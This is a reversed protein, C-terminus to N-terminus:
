SSAKRELKLLFQSFVAMVTVLVATATTLKPYNLSAFMNNMFHQLTYISDHPYGGTIMYIEKFVKFSNILSMILVLISAPQLLPLIIGKFIDGAGAGDIWAAEYYDHPIRNLGDIYLVMSYGLNKWTFILVMIWFATGSDLWRVKGIGLMNLWGNLVGQDAFLSSWFFAMSGSPIVLPILFVLTFLDKRKKIGKAMLSLGLAAGMNLPVSVAIFKCTNFLGKLYAKNHFLDVFNKMGQFTGNVAKDTFAYGLSIFFPLIYFVTFGLLGPLLFLVASHKKIKNM